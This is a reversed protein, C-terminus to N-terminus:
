PITIARRVLPQKTDSPGSARTLLVYRGARLHRFTQTQDCHHLSPAEAGARVLACSVGSAPPPISLRVQIAHRDIRIRLVRARLVGPVTPPGTIPTTTGTPPADTIGTPTAAPAPTVSADGPATPAPTVRVPALPTGADNFLEATGGWSFAPNGTTYAGGGVILVQGDPLPAASAGFRPEQLETSGSAPLATFTDSQPDFIEASQLASGTSSSEGGAILVDGDPLPAAVAGSRPTQLETDGSAPLGAFTDTGPDFLEASQLVGSAGVGGAILVDGNPLPAAVAGVRATLLDSSAPLATFTDTSSDFLEASALITGQTSSGGAANTSVTVNHVGGAILVDGDPLPAAVAGSRSTQLESDGSTPLETFADSTPDFLWAAAETDSTPSLPAADDGGAILVDGDPLPAAVDEPYGAKEHLQTFTQTAPDFLQGSTDIGAGPERGNMVLVQGDQLAAAAGDSVYAGNASDPLLTFTPGTPDASAGSVMLALLACVGLPSLLRLRGGRSRSVAVLCTRVLGNM